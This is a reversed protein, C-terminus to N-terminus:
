QRTSEMTSLILGKNPELEQRLIRNFPVTCVRIAKSRQDTEQNRDGLSQDFEQGQDGVAELTKFMDVYNFATTEAVFPIAIVPETSHGKWVESWVEHFVVSNCIERLIRLRDQKHQPRIQMKESATPQHSDGHVIQVAKPLIGNSLTSLKLLAERLDMYCDEQQEAQTKKKPERWLPKKTLKAIDTNLRERITLLDM